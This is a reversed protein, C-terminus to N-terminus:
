PPAVAEWASLTLSCVSGLEPDGSVQACAKPPEPPKEDQEEMSEELCLLTSLDQAASLSAGLLAHLHLDAPVAPGGVGMLGQEWSAPHMGMAFASRSTGALKRGLYRHIYQSDRLGEGLGLKQLELRTGGSDQAGPGDVQLGLKHGVHGEAWWWLRCCWDM